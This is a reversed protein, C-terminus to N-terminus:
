PSGRVIPAVFEFKPQRTVDYVGWYAGVAGEYRAKWPQDFAEMVYYVYGEERARALFRRLFAAENSM